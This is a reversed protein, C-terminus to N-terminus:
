CIDLVINKTDLVTVDASKEFLAFYRLSRSFFIFFAKACNIKVMNTVMHVSLLKDM